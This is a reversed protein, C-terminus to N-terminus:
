VKKKKGKIKKEKEEKIKRNPGTGGVSWVELLGLTPRLLFARRRLALSLRLELRGCEGCLWPQPGVEESSGPGNKQRLCNQRNSWPM